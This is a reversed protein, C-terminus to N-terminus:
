HKPKEPPETIFFRSALAPSEPSAPEIEPSPIAWPPPFQLGHWYEQRSFEMSLYAQLARAWPIAILRVGSLLCVGLTQKNMQNERRSTERGM